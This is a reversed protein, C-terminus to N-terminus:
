AQEVFHNALDIMEGDCGLLTAISLAEHPVEDSDNPILSYDMFHNINEPTMVANIDHGTFGRVRLCPCRLGLQSYHTTIVSVSQQHSLLTGVAQVIAKGERPNTTRAPEDILILLHENRARQLVNSIKIIESAFSSLGNMENQEDGICCVVDDVLCMSAEDAPVFMAFQAMLQATSLTKLVVTKGAMNAGTILCLGPTLSIDIPQYRLGQERNHERLRPNFLNRFAIEGRTNYTPRCLHWRIAQEAKALLIDAYAMRHLALLLQDSYPHLRDCLQEIVQQQIASQEALLANVQENFLVRQQDDLHQPEDLQRQFATLAKRLPSLRPHYSDYIYFSVIGTHDPDLLAFVPRLDPMALVDDLGMATAARQTENCLRALKKIEFLEVENILEHNQLSRITNEIDHTMMLQHRIIGIQPQAQQWLDITRQLHDMEALLADAQTFWPTDLLDRRGVTSMLELQDVVFQLGPNEKLKTRLTLQNM